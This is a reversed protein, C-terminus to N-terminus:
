LAKDKSYRVLCKFDKPLTLFKGDTAAKMYDIATELAMKKERDDSNKGIWVYVDDYADLIFVDEVM